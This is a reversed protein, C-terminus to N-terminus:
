VLLPIGDMDHLLIAFLAAIERADIVRILQVATAMVDESAVPPKRTGIDIVKDDSM